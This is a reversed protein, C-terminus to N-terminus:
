AMQLRRQRTALAVGVLGLGMLAYTSPEPVSAWIQYIDRDPNALTDTAVVTMSTKFSGWSDFKENIGKLADAGITGEDLGLAVQMIDFGEQTLMLRGFTVDGTLALVDNGDYIPTQPYYYSPSGYSSYYNYVPQTSTQWGILKKSVLVSSRWGEAVAQSSDGDAAALVAKPSLQTTGSISSADWLHVHNTTVWPGLESSLLTGDDNLVVAQQRYSVDAYVGGTRVDGSLSSIRLVGGNSVDQNYPANFEQSGQHGITGIVGTQADLALSPATGNVEMWSRATRGSRMTTAKEVQGSGDLTTLPARLLNFVGVAGGIAAPKAGNPLLGDISIAGNSYVLKDASDVYYLKAMQGSGAPDIVLTPAAGITLTNNAAHGTMTACALATVQVWRLAAHKKNM